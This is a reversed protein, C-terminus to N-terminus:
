DEMEEAKTWLIKELLEKYDIDEKQNYPMVGEKYYIIEYRITETPQYTGNVGQNILGSFPRLDYDETLFPSPIIDLCADFWFHLGMLKAIFYIEDYITSDESDWKEIRCVEIM